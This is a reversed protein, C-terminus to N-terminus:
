AQAEEEATELPLPDNKSDGDVKDVETVALGSAVAGAIGGVVAGLVAGGPGVMAGAVAGTVAGGIGGLRAGKKADTEGDPNVHHESEPTTLPVEAMTDDSNTEHKM